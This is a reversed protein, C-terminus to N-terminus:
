MRGSGPSTNQYVGGSRPRQGSPDKTGPNQTEEGEIQGQGELGEAAGADSLSGQFSMEKPEGQAADHAMATGEIRDGLVRGDWHITKEGARTTANFTVAGGQGVSATYPAPGFGEERCATSEFKGDRFILDDDVPGKGPVNLEVNYVKGLERPEDSACGQFFVAAAAVALGLLKTTV